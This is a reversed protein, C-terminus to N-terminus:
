IRVSVKFCHEICQLMCLGCDSMNQQVPTAMQRGSLVFDLKLGQERALQSLVSFNCAYM